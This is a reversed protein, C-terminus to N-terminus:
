VLPALANDAEDQALGQNLMRAETKTRLRFDDLWHLAPPHMKQDAHHKAILYECNSLASLGSFTDPAFSKMQKCTLELSDLGVHFDGSNHSAVEQPANSEMTAQSFLKPHPHEDFEFGTIKVVQAFADENCNCRVGDNGWRGCHGCNGICSLGDDNECPAICDQTDMTKLEYVLQYDPVVEELQEYHLVSQELRNCFHKRANTSRSWYENHKERNFVFTERPCQNDHQKKVMRGSVVVERRAASSLALPHMFMHYDTIAIKRRSDKFQRADEPVKINSEDIVQWVERESCTDDAKFKKFWATQCFKCLQGNKGAQLCRECNGIEVMTERVNNDALRKVTKVKCIFDM